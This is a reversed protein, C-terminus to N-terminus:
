FVSLYLNVGYTAAGLWNEKVLKQDNAIFPNAGVSAGGSIMPTFQYSLGMSIDIRETDNETGLYERGKKFDRFLEQYLFFSLKDSYSYSQRTYLYLYDVSAGQEKAKILLKKAYYFTGSLSLGNEFSKSASLSPRILGYSNTSIRTDHDPYYRGELNAALNIGHEKENLIGSRTYKLVQRSFTTDFERDKKTPAQWKQGTSWRNEMRLSNKDSLKWGLYLINLSSTGDIDNKKNRTLDTGSYINLSAPSDKLKQWASANTTSTTTATTSVALLPGAVALGLIAIAIKKVRM